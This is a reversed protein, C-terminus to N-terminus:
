ANARCEAQTVHARYNGGNETATAESTGIEVMVRWTVFYTGEHCPAAVTCRKGTLADDPDYDYCHSVSEKEEDGEDGPVFYLDVDMDFTEPMDKCTTEVVSGVVGRGPYGVKPVSTGVKCCHVFIEGVTIDPCSPAKAAATAAKSAAKTAPGGCGGSAATTTLLVTAFLVATRTKPLSFPM